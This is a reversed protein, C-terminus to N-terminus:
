LALSMCGYTDGGRQEEDLLLLEVHVIQSCLVLLHHRRDLCSTLLDQQVLRSVDVVVPEVLTAM